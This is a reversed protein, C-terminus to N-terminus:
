PDELLGSFMTLYSFGYSKEKEKKKKETPVIIDCINSNLQIETCFLGDDGKRPATLVVATILTDLIPLFIHPSYSKSRVIIFSPM